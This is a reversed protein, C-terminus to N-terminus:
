QAHATSQDIANFTGAMTHQQATYSPGPENLWIRLHTMFMEQEQGMRLEHLGPYILTLRKIVNSIEPDPSSPDADIGPSAGHIIKMSFLSEEMGFDVTMWAMERM